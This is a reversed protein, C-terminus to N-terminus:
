PPVVQRNAAAQRQMTHGVASVFVGVRHWNCRYPQAHVNERLLFEMVFVVSSAAGRSKDRRRRNPLGAGGAGRDDHDRCQAASGSLGLM